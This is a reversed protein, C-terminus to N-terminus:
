HKGGRQKRYWELMYEGYMKAIGYEPREFRMLPMKFLAQVATGVGGERNKQVHIETFWDGEPIKLFNSEYYGHRYLMLVVDAAEEINGSDRLDSMKPRKDQRQEVSRNLQSLLLVWVNLEEALDRLQKVVLGIQGVRDKEDIRIMQLYDIALFAMDEHQYKHMRAINCIQDITLGRKDVYGLPLKDLMTLAVSEREKEDAALKSKLHGVPVSGVAAVNRRMLAFKKQELSVILGRHGLRAWHRCEQLMLATKGMSPRAALVMLNTKEFGQTEQTLEDISYPVTPTTNGAEIDARISHYEEATEHQSYIELESGQRTASIIRKQAKEALKQVDGRESQLEINLSAIAQKVERRQYEKQLKDCVYEIHEPHYKAKGIELVEDYGGDLHEALSHVNVAEGKRDIKTLLYALRRSYENEMYDPNFKHAIKAWGGALCNAIFQLELEATM